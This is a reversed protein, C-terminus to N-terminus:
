FADIKSGVADVAANFDKYYQRYYGKVNGPETHSARKLFEDQITLLEGLVEDAKADDVHKIEKMIIAEVFMDSIIYNVAKKLEKRSAM